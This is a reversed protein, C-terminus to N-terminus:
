GFFFTVIFNGNEPRFSWCHKIEHSKDIEFISSTVSAHALVYKEVNRFKRIKKAVLKYGERM